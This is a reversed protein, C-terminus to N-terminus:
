RLTDKFVEYKAAFDFCYRPFDGINSGFFVIYKTPLIVNKSM